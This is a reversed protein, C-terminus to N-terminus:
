FYLSHDDWVKKELALRMDDYGNRQHKELTVKAFNFDKSSASNANSEYILQVIDVLKPTGWKLIDQVVADKKDEDSLRQALHTIAGRLNQQKCYLHFYEQFHSSYRIDKERQQVEDFTHPLSGCPSYCNVAFCLTNHTPNAKLFATIPTNSYVGGDWYFEDGVKVAPFGPPLAASAMIHEPTIHHELNNFYVQEGTRVCVAGLYLPIEKANIRDFDILELLTKRLPAIDYFSIKDVEKERMVWPNHLRPKFFNPQGLLLASTAGLQNYLGTLNQKFVNLEDFPFQTSIKNWFLKLTEVRTEASNGALIAANIAGISIGSIADPFYHHEHLAAIVGVQYAGLAGGGQLVYVVREYKRSPKKKM